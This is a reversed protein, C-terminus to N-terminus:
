TLEQIAGPIKFKLEGSDLRPKLDNYVATLLEVETPLAGDITTVHLGRIQAYQETSIHLGCAALADEVAFVDTKAVREDTTVGAQIAAARVQAYTTSNRVVFTKAVPEAFNVLTKMGDVIDTAIIPNISGFQKSDNMQGITIATTETTDLNKALVAMPAGAIVGAISLALIFTSNKKM